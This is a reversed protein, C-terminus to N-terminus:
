MNFDIQLMDGIINDYHKPNFISAGGEPYFTIEGFIVKNNVSYFDVRCFKIGESLKKACSIMEDINKPKEIDENYREYCTTFEALNWNIDYFNRKHNKFRDFDVQIFKPNGNFCFIKYDLPTDFKEDVLLEECIIRPKVNKYHYERSLYYYNQKLREEFEKIAYKWEINKKDKCVIVGGSDHTTKLVFKDPLKNIDIQSTDEYVNYLKNLYKNGIKNEVFKRVEYKDVLNSYFSQRDNLKLWQIKENFTVPAELNINKKYKRKYQKKILIEDTYLKYTISSVIRLVRRKFINIIYKKKM